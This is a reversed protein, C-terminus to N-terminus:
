TRRGREKVRFHRPKLMLGMQTEDHARAVEGHTAEFRIPFRKYDEFESALFSRIRESLDLFKQRGNGIVEQWYCIRADNLPGRLVCAVLAAQPRRASRHRSYRFDRFRDLVYQDRLDGPSSAAPSLGVEIKLTIFPEETRLDARLAPD